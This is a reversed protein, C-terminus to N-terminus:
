NFANEVAKLVSNTTATAGSVTDIDVKQSAIVADLIDNATAEQGQNGYELLNIGTIEHGKVTVEVKCSFRGNEYAGIYEGDSVQSLDVSSIELERAEKVGKLGFLGAVVFLAVFGLFVFLVVKM